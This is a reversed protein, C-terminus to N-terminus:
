LKVVSETEIAREAALGLEVAARGIAGTTSPDTADLVCDIFHSMCPYDAGGHVGRIHEPVDSPYVRPEKADVRNVTVMGGTTDIKAIANGETGVIGFEHGGAKQAFMCLLLTARAGSDYDVVVTANDLVDGDRHVHAQSGLAAIKTPKGGAFWNFMDFHHCNKEVLTGGSYQKQVIWKGVKEGFPGRFERFWIYKPEGIDGRDVVERMKTAWFSFRCEFGVMFTKDTRGAAAIIADCDHLTTAMPKETYVHYGADLAAVVHECHLYNPTCVFVCDVDEERLMTPFDTYTAPQGEAADVAKELNPEHPDALAVVEARDIFHLYQLLRRCRGGAGIFGFRLPTM